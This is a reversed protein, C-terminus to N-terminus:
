PLSAAMAALRAPQTDLNALLAAVNTSVPAMLDRTCAYVQGVPGSAGRADAALVLRPTSAVPVLRHAAHGACRQRWVALASEVGLLEFCPTARAM